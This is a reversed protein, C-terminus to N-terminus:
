SIATLSHFLQVTDSGPSVGLEDHLAACCLQFQRSVLQQQHQLAYCRMLLRHVAEYCQDASLALQGFQVAAALDNLDIHMETLRELAQLYLDTLRRQEPLYWDSDGDDEFLPGRYLRVAQLYVHIARQLDGERRAAEAHQVAALFETRDIWWTLEPNPLYCGDQYLIYQGDRGHQSLTSRLSYLAANLNNRASGLTHDPWMLEMLVERRVPRGMQVVLYQFVTRAKLSNWRLVRRGAVTLDLPGLVCAAVEADPVAPPEVPLVPELGVAPVTAPSALVPGPGPPANTQATGIQREWSTLLADIGQHMEQAARRQAHAASELEVAVRLQEAGLLRLQRLRDTISGQGASETLARSRPPPRDGGEPSREADGAAAPGPGAGPDAASGPYGTMAHKGGTRNGRVRRTIANM